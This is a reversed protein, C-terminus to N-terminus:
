VEEQGRHGDDLCDDARADQGDRVGHGFHAIHKPHGDEEHRTHHRLVSGDHQQFSLVHRVM